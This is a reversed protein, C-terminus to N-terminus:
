HWRYNGIRESTNDEKRGFDLYGLFINISNYLFIALAKKIQHSIKCFNKM